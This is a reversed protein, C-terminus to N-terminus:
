RRLTGGNNRRREIKPAPAIEFDDEDPVLSLGQGNDWRMMISGADDVGEVTGYTGAPVPRPDDSMSNLKIRTGKPYTERLLQLKRQSPVNM